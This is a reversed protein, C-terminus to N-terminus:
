RCKTWGVVKKIYKKNDMSPNINTPNIYTIIPIKKIYEKNYRPM